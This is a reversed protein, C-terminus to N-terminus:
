TARCIWLNVQLSKLNYNPLKFISATVQTPLRTNLFLVLKELSPVNWPNMPQAFGYLTNVHLEFLQLQKLNELVNPIKSFSGFDMNSYDSRIDFANLNQQTASFEVLQDMLSATTSSEFHFSLSQLNLTKLSDFVISPFEEEIVHLRLEKM